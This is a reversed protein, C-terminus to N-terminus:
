EPSRWTSILISGLNSERCRMRHVHPHIHSPTSPSSACMLPCHVHPTTYMLPHHVHPPPTCSPHHVHPTTYMLPYHVHPTTYLLPLHVHPPPTCSPHHVHPTTYMLPHRVHPCPPPPNLPKLFGREFSGLYIFSIGEGKLGGAPFLLLSLFIFSKTVNNEFTTSPKVLWHLDRFESKSCCFAM